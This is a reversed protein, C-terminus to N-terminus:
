KNNRIWSIRAQRIKNKLKNYDPENPFDKGSVDKLMNLGLDAFFVKERNKDCNTIIELGKLGLVTKANRELFDVKTSDRMEDFRGAIMHERCAVM